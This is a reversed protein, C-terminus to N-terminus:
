QDKKLNALMPVTEKMVPASHWPHKSFTGNLFKIMADQLEAFTNINKPWTAQTKFITAEEEKKKPEKDRKEEEEARNRKKDAVAVAM